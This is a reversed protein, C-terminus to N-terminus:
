LLYHVLRLALGLMYWHYSNLAALCRWPCQAVWLKLFVPAGLSGFKYFGPAASRCQYGLASMLLFWLMLAVFSANGGVALMFGSVWPGSAGACLPTAFRGILLM